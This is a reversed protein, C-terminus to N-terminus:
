PATEETTTSSSVLATALDIETLLLHLEERRRLWVSGFRSGDPGRTWDAVQRDLHEAFTELQSGPLLGCLARYAPLRYSRDRAAWDLLSYAIECAARM